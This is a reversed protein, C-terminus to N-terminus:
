RVFAVAKPGRSNDSFIVEPKAGFRVARLAKDLALILHRGSVDWSIRPTLTGLKIRGPDDGTRAYTSIGLDLRWKQGLLIEGRSLDVSELFYDPGRKTLAAPEGNFAFAALVRGGPDGPDDLLGPKKQVYTSKWPGMPQMQTDMPIASQILGIRGSRIVMENAFLALGKGPLPALHAGNKKAGDQVRHVKKVTPVKAGRSIEFIGLATCPIDNPPDCPVRADGAVWWGTKTSVPHSPAQVPLLDQKKGQGDFLFLGGISPVGVFDGMSWLLQDATHLHKERIENKLKLSADYRLLGRNAATAFIHGKVTAVGHPSPISLGSRETLGGPGLSLVQIRGERENAMAFDPFAGKNSAQGVLPIALSLACLVLAPASKPKRTKRKM